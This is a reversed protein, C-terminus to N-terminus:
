RIVALKGSTQQGLSNTALYLYVGSAIHQGSDNNLDWGVSGTNTSLKRVERGSITFIRVDTNLPLRDFTMPIGSHRDSRWPNPYARVTSLNAAVAVANTPPDPQAPGGSAPTVCNGGMCSQAAALAAGADLRGSGFLNAPGVPNATALLLNKVIVPNWGPNLSFILAAVGAALPSAFSTGSWSGYGGPQTTMISVGPAALNISGGYNSFPALQDASDSGSVLIVNHPMPYYSSLDQSDNGASVFTLAGKTQAYTAAAEITGPCGLTEYSLNIVKAGHDAAWEIGSAM